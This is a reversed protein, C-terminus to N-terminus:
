TRKEPKEACALLGPLPKGRLMELLTEGSKSEFVFPNAASNDYLKPLMRATDHGIVLSTEFEVEKEEEKKTEDGGDGEDEDDENEEEDAAGEDEDEDGGSIRHGCHALFTRTGKEFREVPNGEADEVMGLAGNWLVGRSRRLAIRLGECAQEGIDRVAWDDPVVELPSTEVVAGSTDETAVSEVPPAATKTQKQPKEPPRAQPLGVQLRLTGHESDVCTFCEKGQVYGLSVPSQAIAAFASRLSYTQINKDEGNEDEGEPKEPEPPPEEKAPAAKAKAKGKAKAAAVPEEEEVEPKPPLCKMAVVDAPFAITVGLALADRLADRIAIAALDSISFDLKGLKLGFICSLLALCFEGGLSILVGATEFEVLQSLGLLLQLKRILVMESDAKGYGGGGMVILLPSKPAELKPSSEAGKKKFQLKLADCFNMIEFEVLQGVVKVPATPWLGANVTCPLRAGCFSDQVYVEPNLEKLVGQAWEERTAWSLQLSNVRESSSGEGDEHVTIFRKIGVEEPIAAMNELLFVKNDSTDARVVAAFESAQGIWRVHDVFEVASAFGDTGEELLPLIEKLSPLTTIGPAVDAEDIEVPEDEAMQVRSGSREAQAPEPKPQGVHAIVIIALPSTELLPPIGLRFSERVREEAKDDLCFKPKGAPLGEEAPPVHVFASLFSLDIEYLVVNANIDVSESNSRGVYPGLREQLTKHAVQNLETLASTEFAVSEFRSVCPGFHNQVFDEVFVKDKAEAEKEPEGRRSDRLEVLKEYEAVSDPPADELYEFDPPVAFPLPALECSKRAAAHTRPVAKAIDMVMEHALWWLPSRELPQVQAERVSRNLEVTVERKEKELASGKPAVVQRLESELRNVSPVGELTHFDKHSVGDPGRKKRIPMRGRVSVSDQSTGGAIEATAEDSVSKDKLSKAKLSGISSGVDILRHWSHPSWFLGHAANSEEFLREQILPASLDPL